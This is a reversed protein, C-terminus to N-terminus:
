MGVQVTLIFEQAKIGHHRFNDYQKQAWEKALPMNPFQRIELATKGTLKTPLSVRFSVSAQGQKSIANIRERIKIGSDKPFELVKLRVSRLLNNQM